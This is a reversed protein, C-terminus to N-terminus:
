VNKNELKKLAEISSDFLSEESFTLNKEVCFKIFGKYGNFLADLLKSTPIIASQILEGQDHTDFKNIEFFCGADKKVLYLKNLHDLLEIYYKEESADDAVVYSLDAWTEFLEETSESLIVKNNYIVKIYGPLYDNNGYNLLKQAALEAFPHTIALFKDKQDTLFGLEPVFNAVYTIIEIKKSM